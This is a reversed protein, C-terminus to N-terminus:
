ITSEQFLGTTLSTDHHVDESDGRARHRAFLPLQHDHTHLKCGQLTLSIHCGPNQGWWKIEKDAPKKLQFKKQRLKAARKAKLVQDQIKEEPCTVRFGKIGIPMILGQEGM